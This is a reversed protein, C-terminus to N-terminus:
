IQWIYQRVGAEGVGRQAKLQGLPGADPDIAANM